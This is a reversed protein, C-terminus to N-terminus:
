WDLDFCVMWELMEPNASRLSNYDKPISVLPRIKCVNELGHYGRKKNALDPEAKIRRRSHKLREIAELRTLECPQIELYDPPPVSWSKLFTMDKSGFIGVLTIERVKFPYYDLTAQLGGKKRLSNRMYSIYEALRERFKHSVSFSRKRYLWCISNILDCSEHDGFIANKEHAVAYRYIGSLSNIARIDVWADWKSQKTVEDKEEIRYALHQHDDMDPFVEFKTDHFWLVCHHHPYGYALAMNGNKDLPNPFAEPFRLVSIEGYRNRLNKMARDFACSCCHCGARHAFYSEGIHIGKKKIKEVGEGTWASDLSSVPKWTFTVWLLSSYIKKQGDFDKPEFFVINEARKLFGLRKELRKKHVSNGRKSCLTGYIKHQNKLVDLEDLVLYERHDRWIQYYAKLFSIQEVSLPLMYNRFANLRPTRYHKYLVELMEGEVSLKKIGCDYFEQSEPLTPFIPPVLSLDTM